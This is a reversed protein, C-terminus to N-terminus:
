YLCISVCVCVLAAVVTQIAHQQKACTQTSLYAFVRSTLKGVSSPDARLRQFACTKLVGDDIVFCACTLMSTVMNLCHFCSM